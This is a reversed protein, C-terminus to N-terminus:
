HAMADLVADGTLLPLSSTGYIRDIGEAALVAYLSVEDGVAVPALFSM